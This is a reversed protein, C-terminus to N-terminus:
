PFCFAISILVFFNIIMCCSGYIDGSHLHMIQATLLDKENNNEVDDTEYFAVRAFFGGVFMFFAMIIYSNIVASQFEGRNKM